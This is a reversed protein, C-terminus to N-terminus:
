AQANEWAIRIPSCEPLDTVIFEGEILPRCKSHCHMETGSWGSLSFCDMTDGLPLIYKGCVDCRPGSSTITM